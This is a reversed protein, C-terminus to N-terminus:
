PVASDVPAVPGDVTFVRVTLQLQVEPAVAAAADSAVDPREQVSLQEIVLLRELDRLRGLYTDASERAGAVAISVQVSGGPGAPNATLPAPTLTALSMGTSSAVDQLQRLLGALEPSVPVANLLMEQRAGDEAEVVITTSTAQAQLTELQREADQREYRASALSASQPRWIMVYGAVLVLGGLAVAMRTDKSSSQKM